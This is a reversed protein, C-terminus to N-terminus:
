GSRCGEVAEKTGFFFVKTLPVKHLLHKHSLITSSKTLEVRTKGHVTQVRKADKTKDEAQAQGEKSAATFKRPALAHLDRLDGKGVYFKLTDL